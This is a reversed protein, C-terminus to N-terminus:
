HVNEKIEEISLRHYMSRVISGKIVVLLLDKGKEIEEVKRSIEDYKVALDKKDIMGESIKVPLEGYKLMYSIVGISWIDVKNNYPKSLTIEPASYIITGCCESITQSLSITISLGFDILQIQLPSRSSLLINNMKIDRHTIGNSHLFSVADLIQNIFENKQEKNRFIDENKDIEGHRVYGMVIFIFSSDEYVDVIDIVNKHKHKMLYESSWVEYINQKRM